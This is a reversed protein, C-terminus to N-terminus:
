SANMFLSLKLLIEKTCGLIQQGNSFLLLFSHTVHGKIATKKCLFLYFLAASTVFTILIQLAGRYLVKQSHGVAISTYNRFDLKSIKINLKM